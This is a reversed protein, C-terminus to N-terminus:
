SDWPYADFPYQVCGKTGATPYDNKNFRRSWVALDHFIMCKDRQTPLRADTDVATLVGAVTAADASMRLGGGAATDLVLFKPSSPASDDWPTWDPLQGNRGQGPAGRYAFEAWYSMM